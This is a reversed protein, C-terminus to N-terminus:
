QCFTVFSVNAFLSKIEDIGKGAKRKSVEPAFLFARLLSVGFFLTEGDASSSEPRLGLVRRAKRNRKAVHCSSANTRPEVSVKQASNTRVYHARYVGIQNSNM